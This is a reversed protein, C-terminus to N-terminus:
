GNNIVSADSIFWSISSSFHFCVLKINKVFFTSTGQLKCQYFEKYNDCDDGNQSCHQHRCQIPCLVLRACCVACGILLLKYRSHVYVKRIIVVTKIYPRSTWLDCPFPVVLIRVIACYEARKTIECSTIDIEARNHFSGIDVMRVAICQIEALICNPYTFHMSIGCRGYQNSLRKQSTVEFPELPRRTIEGKSIGCLIRCGRAFARVGSCLNMMIVIAIYANIFCMILEQVTCIKIPMNGSRGSLFENSSCTLVPFIYCTGTGAGACIQIEVSDFVYNGQLVADEPM